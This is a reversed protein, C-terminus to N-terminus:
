DNDRSPREAKGAKGRDDSDSEDTHRTLNDDDTFTEDHTGVADSLAGPPLQTPKKPTM